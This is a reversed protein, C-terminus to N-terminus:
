DPTIIELSQFSNDQALVLDVASVAGDKNIDYPDLITASGTINTQILVLDVANVSFQTNSNGVDGILNGFFFTYNSPLKTNSDAKVTVKLWTNVISDDTWTLDVPTVGGSAPLLTITPTPVTTWTSSDSSNGVTFQFNSSTLTAGSPLGDIDIIIGNIGKSYNTINAYTATQGYLLASKDPAIASLDATNAATNNGDYISNNYFVSQGVVFSDGYGTSFAGEAANYFSGSATQQLKIARVMYVDQASVASTDTYSTLPDPTNGNIKVFTGTASNYRFIDYGVIGSDPSATWTVTNVVGGGSSASSVLVNSAPAVPFATLTPDGMLTFQQGAEYSGPGTAGGAQMYVEAQGVSSGMAMPYVSPAVLDDLSNTINGYMSVLGVGPGALPSRLFSDTVNSGIFSDPTNSPPINWDGFFSGELINFVAGNPSNEFDRSGAFYEAGQSSGPGAGYGFLYGQQGSPPTGVWDNSAVASAGYFDSFNDITNGTYTDFGSWVAAQSVNWQGQRFAVDRELYSQLLQTETPKTSADSLSGMLYMDIRGVALTPAYTGNLSSLNYVVNPSYASTQMSPTWDGPNIDGYYADSPFYRAPQHGDPSETGAYVVPIDGILLVQKVNPNTACDGMIASRISAPDANEAFDQQIVSWGDGVLSQTFQQLQTSLSTAFSSDVILIITGPNENVAVEHGAVGDASVAIGADLDQTNGGAGVTSNFIQYEYDQGIEATEDVFATANGAVTGISNWSTSGVLRRSIAYSQSTNHQPWTLEIYAPSSNVQATAEIQNSNLGNLFYPQSYPSTYTAASPSTVQVIAALRLYQSYQETLNALDSLAATGSSGTGPILNLTTWNHVGDPSSQLVFGTPTPSGSPENWTVAVDPEQPTIVLAASTITPALPLLDGSNYNRLSFYAPTSNSPATSAVVYYAGATSNATASISAGGSSNLTASVQYSIPTGTGLVASAGSSPAAFTVIGGTVNLNPDNATVSIQLNSFSNGVQANQNSGSVVSVVFGQSEFAGIDPASGQPRPIGRQDTLIPYDGSDNFITSADLAPSGPLLAITQTPGGYNGLSALLPNKGLINTSGSLGGTGDGILNYTGSFTGALDKNTNGAVITGNLTVGGWIGGGWNTHTAVNDAVTSDTLTLYGNNWLGGGQAASNGSITSNTIVATSTYNEIGGGNSSSINGSITSDSVYLTGASYIGAGEGATNGSITSNTITLTGSNNIGGGYSGANGRVTADNIILTAGDEVDIGGSTHSFGGTLTLNEIESSGYAQIDQIANQGSISLLGVGPGDITLTGPTDNLILSGLSSNLDITAAGNSTLSPAFTITQDGGLANALDVADRLSLQGPSTPDDLVTNVVLPDSQTQFAGIDPDSPRPFGRQDTPIGANALGAGLAPSGPLLAMTATPGGYNGLSTLMPSGGILNHSGTYGYSGAINGGTNQSLISSYINCNSNINIGGGGGTQTATNGTITSDAIALIGGNSYIAGGEEGKNGTLTCNTLAVDNNTFIAGGDEYDSDGVRTYKALNGSLTCDTLQISGYNDIAGGMSTGTNDSLTSDSITLNGEGDNYIGGGMAGTNGTITCNSITLDSNNFIGGGFGGAYANSDVGGEIKLGSIQATSGGEVTFVRSLGNANISLSQPGRGEITLSGSSPTFALSTGDLAITAPGGATLTADFAIVSPLTSSECDAIAQRLTLLGPAVSGDQTTNVDVVEFAGISPSGISRSQGRQDISISDFLTGHGIAPSSALPQLTETPGGYNGLSSLEPNIPSTRTGLINHSLTLSSLGGTGDGILDYTGSFSGIVDGGANAAVITGSLTGGGGTIGGGGGHGTAINDAITSDVITIPASSGYIDIGGGNGANNGTITCNAVTMNGYDYIAGGQANLASNGSLTSDSINATGNSFIGGGATVAQNGSITSDIITLMGGNNQIGGGNDGQNDSIVCGDLTLDSTADIYIGGAGTVDTNGSNGKGGSITLGSIAVTAGNEAAFVVGTGNGNVTLATAELGDITTNGGSLAPLAGLMASVTITGSLGAQFTIINSTSTNANAQQIAWRLENAEGNDNLNTVLYSNLLMRSELAEICAKQLSHRSRRVAGLRM